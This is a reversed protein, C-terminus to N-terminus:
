AAAATSVDLISPLPYSPPRTAPHCQASNAPRKATIRVPLRRATEVLSANLCRRMQPAVAVTRPMAATRHHLATDKRTMGQATCHDRMNKMPDARKDTISEAYPPSSVLGGARGLVEGLMRSDGQLLTATGWRPLTSYRRNWLAINERGLGVFKEELEVGVWHLGNQMAHLAGLAVGGFPDVVCAGPAIYGQEIAHVYIRRILARSFKAPHAFSELTIIGTWGQGHCKHWNTQKM